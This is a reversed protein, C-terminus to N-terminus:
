GGKRNESTIREVLYNLGRALSRSATRTSEMFSSLQRWRNPLALLRLGDRWSCVVLSREMPDLIARMAVWAIGAQDAAQAISASELDVSIAGFKQGVESKAQPDALAREVTVFPGVSALGNLGLYSLEPRRRQGSGAHIVESAIVLDGIEFGPRTGGSFGTSIVLRVDRQQLRKRVVEGARSGMGTILCQIRSGSGKRFNALEQSVAATVLFESM